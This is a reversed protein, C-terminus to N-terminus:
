DGNTSPGLTVIVPPMGSKALTFRCRLGDGISVVCIGRKRKDRRLLMKGAVAIWRM